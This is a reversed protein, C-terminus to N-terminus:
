REAVWGHFTAKRNCRCGGVTRTRARVRVLEGTWPAKVEAERATHDVTGGVRICNNSTLIMAAVM